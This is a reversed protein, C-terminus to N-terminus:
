KVELRKIQDAANKNKPDLELSRKYNKLANAQDGNMEQVEALSDYANGSKPYLSTNLNFVSLAEKNKRESLLRYGWTNLDNENLLFAPDKKKLNATVQPAKDFGQKLLEARLKRVAPALGFGNSEHMDNIYYGAVEDIFSEPNGGMLNTLVVISLDDQPYIFFASRGGGVPTVAPHEARPITPFGLAYGNMVRSFGGTKGSNLVAPTWLTKLSNKDKLLAGSQLAVIWKAMDPATSLIGAATRYYVPFKIFGKGLVGGRIWQGGVNQITTYSGADHPIIDFSDGFRTHPMGAVAFQRTEIFKTFHMGSLKTIIKGILVYGTQNYSFREGTKFEMPLAKVKDLASKETGNGLPNENEDIIDPLGSTHTMVDKITIKQWGAPLSDIYTSVPDNINLKGEESLQMVAVGVFAKTISNISFISEETAPIAQEVNAMGYIARKIIKGHQIVALQLGPIQKKKMMEKVFVDVSDTRTQAFGTVSILSFSLFLASKVLNLKM